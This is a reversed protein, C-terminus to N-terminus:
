KQDMMEPLTVNEFGALEMGQKVHAALALAQAGDGHVCISQAPMKLMTGDVARVTGDVFLSLCQALSEDADEILADDRIRPVLQGDPMYRRDAFVEEAVVLGAKHGQASIQSLAPSLLILTPDVSAVAQCIAGAMGADACAMNSLAGHAKVHTISVGILAAMGLTAGIQYAMLREIEALSLNMPRRGFGHLDLFGPHAGLSVGQADAQAMVQGMINHDGAHFGCAINASKILGLLGDDDGMKWPGYGEAMDANLNFKM